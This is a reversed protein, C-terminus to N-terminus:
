QIQTNAHRAQTRQLFLSSIAVAQTQMQAQFYEVISVANPILLGSIGISHIRLLFRIPNELSSGHKHM